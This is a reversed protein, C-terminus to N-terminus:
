QWLPALVVYRLLSTRKRIGDQALRFSANWGISTVRVTVPQNPPETKRGHENERCWQLSLLRCQTTEESHAVMVGGTDVSHHKMSAPWGVGAMVSRMREVHILVM